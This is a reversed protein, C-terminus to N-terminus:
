RCSDPIMFSYNKVESIHIIGDYDEAFGDVVEHHLHGRFELYMPQYPVKRKQQYYENMEIGAWDFSVWYSTQSNCLQFSHVEPGWYYKGLYIKEDNPNSCGVLTLIALLIIQKM